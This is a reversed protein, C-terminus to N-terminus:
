EGPARDSATVLSDRCLAEMIPGYFNGLDIGNHQANLRAVRAAIKSALLLVYDPSVVPGGYVALASSHVCGNFDTVFTDYEAQKGLSQAITALNGAYWTSRTRPGRKVTGDSQRTEVLYRDKVRDYEEAVRREGEPRKASSRLRQALRTDHSLVKASKKYREVHEYELYDSARANMSDADHVLYEAQYCADFMARLLVGADVIFLKEDPSHQQLTRISCWTNAVRLLFYLLARSVEDRAICGNSKQIVQQLLAFVHRDFEEATTQTDHDTM